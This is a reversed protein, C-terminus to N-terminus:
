GWFRSAEENKPCARDAREAEFPFCADNLRPVTREFQVLDTFSLPPRRDHWTFSNETAHSPPKAPVTQYVDFFLMATIERSQTIGFAPPVRRRVFIQSRERNLSIM